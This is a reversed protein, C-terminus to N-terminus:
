CSIFTAGDPDTWTDSGAGGNLVDAPDLGGELSDDGGKGLLENALADGTIQDAFGTGFVREAMVNDGEGAAGDNALGDLTVVVGFAHGAYSAQDVGAQGDMLDPGGAGRLVDDGGGGLLENAGDSGVLTDHGYGRGM